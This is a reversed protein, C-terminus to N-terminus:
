TESLKCRRTQCAEFNSSTVHLALFNIGVFSKSWIYIYLYITWQQIVMNMGSQSASLLCSGWVGLAGQNVKLLSSVVPGAEQSKSALKVLSALTEQSPLAQLDVYHTLIDGISLTQGLRPEFTISFNPMRQSSYRWFTLWQFLFRDRKELCFFFVEAAIEKLKLFWWSVTMLQYSKPISGHASTIGMIFISQMTARSGDGYWGMGLNHGMKKLQVGWTPHSFGMKVSLAGQPLEDETGSSAKVVVLSDSHCGLRMCARM